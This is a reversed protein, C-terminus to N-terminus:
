RKMAAIVVGQLWFTALWTTINFEITTLFLTNIAWLTIFPGVVIGLAFMATIYTKM